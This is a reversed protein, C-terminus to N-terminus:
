MATSQGTNLLGRSPRRLEQVQARRRTLSGGLQRSPRAAAGAAPPCEPVATTLASSNAPAPPAPTAPPRLGRPRAAPWGPGGLDVSACGVCRISLACTSERLGGGGHEGNHAHQGDRRADNLKM